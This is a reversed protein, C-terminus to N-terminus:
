YSALMLQIIIHYPCLGREERKAGGGWGWGRVGAPLGLADALQLDGSSFTGDPDIVQVPISMPFRSTCLGLEPPTATHPSMSRLELNLQDLQPGLPLCKTQWHLGTLYWNTTGAGDPVAVPVFLGHSPPASYRVDLFASGAHLLCLPNNNVLVVSGSDGAHACVRCSVFVIDDLFFIYVLYKMWGYVYM